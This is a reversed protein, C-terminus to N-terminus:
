CVPLWRIDNAKFVFACLCFVRYLILHEENNASVKGPNKMALAYTSETCRWM